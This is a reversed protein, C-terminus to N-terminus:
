PVWLNMVANALAEWRDRKQPLDLGRVGDWKKIGKLIIRGNVHLDELHHRDSLYKWRFVTHV